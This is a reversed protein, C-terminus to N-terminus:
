PDQQHLRSNCTEGGAGLETSRCVVFLPLLVAVLELLEQLM